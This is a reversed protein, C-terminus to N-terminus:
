EEIVQRFLRFLAAHGDDNPHTCSADFWLTPDEPRYCRNNMDPERGAAVYGHGCFHELVWVYDINYEVIIRMYGELLDSILEQQAVPNAWNQFGVLAAVDIALSSLDLRGILPIEIASPQCSDVLGTGDTFEFPGGLVVYSGSPFRAPDKMFRVAEELYTLAEDVMARVTPYGAEIEARGEPTEFTFEGGVKTIEAVDNGGITMVFLTRDNVVPDPVCNFLAKEPRDCREDSEPTAAARICRDDDGCVGGACCAACFEAREDDPVNNTRIKGMFDDVRAGWRACNWFDGSNRLGPDGDYLCSYAEWQEWDLPEGKSLQYRESLWNALRTRFFHDNDLCLPHLDNPTGNSVSDGLFIVREVGQIDQHNTGACHSGVVPEFQDYDPGPQNPDSIDAFCRAATPRGVSMDAPPLADPVAADGDADVDIAADVSQGAGDMEVMADVPASAADMTMSADRQSVVADRLVPEQENGSAGTEEGCAVCLMGSVLVVVATLRLDLLLM